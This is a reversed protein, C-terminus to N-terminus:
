ESQIKKKKELYDIAREARDIATDSDSTKVINELIAFAWPEPSINALGNILKIQDEQIKTQGAIKTWIEQTEGTAETAYKIASDFALTRHIMDTETSIHEILLNFGEQDVWNGLAGIASIKAKNDSSKLNQKILDLAQPGGVRGILRLASQKVPDSPSNTFTTILPSRFSSTSASKKIITALNDEAAKRVTEKDTAKLIELFNEFHSDSASFRCAEIAAVAVQTENTTKAFKLLTNIVSPNRRKGLVDRILVVRIDPHISQTTAFEAIRADVDTNDTAKALYLAMYIVYRDKQEAISVANQLLIDLQRKNVPLETTGEKAAKLILENFIAIEANERKKNLLFFIM